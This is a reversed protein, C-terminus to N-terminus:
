THPEQASFASEGTANVATLRLYLPSPKGALSLTYTTVNGVNVPSGSSTYPGGPAAGYYVKYSTVNDGAPNANWALRLVTNSNTSTRGTYTHTTTGPKVRLTYRPAKPAYSVAAKTAAVQTNRVAIWRGIM